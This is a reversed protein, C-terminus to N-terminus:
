DEFTIKGPQYNPVIYIELRGTKQWFISSQQGPTMLREDVVSYFM